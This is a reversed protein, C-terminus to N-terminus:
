PEKPESPQVKTTAVISIPKADIIQKGSEPNSEFDSDVELESYKLEAV